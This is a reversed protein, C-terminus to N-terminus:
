VDILLWNGAFVEFPGPWTVLRDYVWGVVTFSELVPYAQQLAEAGIEGLIVVGLVGTILYMATRITGGGMAFLIGFALVSAMFFRLGLLHPYANLGEPLTMSVAAAVSGAWLAGVVPLLLVLGAGMKLMVYEWRPVPLSLAYVHDVKHDWSWATLAMGAGAVTALLPFFGSWLEPLALFAYMSGSGDLQGLGQVSLLPLGFAMVVLPLLLYRAAKWHVFLIQRFM